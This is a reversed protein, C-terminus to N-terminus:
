RLPRQHRADARYQSLSRLHTPEDPVLAVRSPVCLVFFIKCGRRDSRHGSSHRQQQNTWSTCNSAMRRPQQGGSPCRRGGIRRSRVRCRSSLALRKPSRPTSCATIALRHLSANKDAAFLVALTSAKRSWAHLVIVKSLCPMSRGLWAARDAVPIVCHASFAVYREMPDARSLLLMGMAASNRLGVIRFSFLIGHRSKSIWAPAERGTLRLCLERTFHNCNRNLLSYNSARWEAENRMGEITELVHELARARSRSQSSLCSSSPM